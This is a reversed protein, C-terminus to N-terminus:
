FHDKNQRKLRPLRNELPAPDCNMLRACDHMFCIFQGPKSSMTIKKGTGQKWLYVLQMILHDKSYLTENRRPWKKPNLDDLADILHPLYVEHLLELILSKDPGSYGAPRRTREIFRNSIADYLVSQARMESSIKKQLTIAARRMVAIDRLIEEADPEKPRGNRCEIGYAIYPLSVALIGYKIGYNRAIRRMEKSDLKPPHWELCAHYESPEAM